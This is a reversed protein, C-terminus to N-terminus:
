ISTLQNDVRIALVESCFYLNKVADFKDYGICMSYKKKEKTNFASINYAELCTGEM